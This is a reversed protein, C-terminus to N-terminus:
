QQKRHARLLLLLALIFGAAGILILGGFNPGTYNSWGGSGADSWLGVASLLPEAIRGLWILPLLLAYFAFLAPSSDVKLAAVALLSLLFYTASIWLVIRM